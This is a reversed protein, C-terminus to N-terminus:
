PNDEAARGTEAVPEELPRWDGGISNLWDCGETGELDLALIHDGGGPCVLVAAGTDKDRPPRYVTITPKSVNGLRIVRKGAILGETPKTMDREEGINGKEGPAQGPWLAIEEPKGAASGNLALGAIGSASMPMRVHFRPKM